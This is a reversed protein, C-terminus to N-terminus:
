LKRLLLSKIYSELPSVDYTSLNKLCELAENIHSRAINLCTEKNYLLPFCSKKQKLDKNSTKGLFSNSDLIDDIIQYSMGIHEGLKTFKLVDEKCCPASLAGITCAASILKATKHLHIDNLTDESIGERDTWYMDLMQGHLMGKSGAALFLQKYIELTNESKNTENSFDENYPDQIMQFADTLLANGALLATAEDFQVHVTPRGRRIKDNDLCPLDDHILSYCHIMEIALASPAASFINGGVTRNCLLTLIPRVYKGQGQFAYKIAQSLRDTKNYRQEIIKKISYHIFEKFEEILNHHSM